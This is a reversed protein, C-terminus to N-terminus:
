TIEKRKDLLIFQNNREVYYGDKYILVKEKHEISMLTLKSEINIKKINGKEEFIRGTSNVQLCDRDNYKIYECDKIHMLWTVSCELIAHYEEIGLYINENVHSVIWYALSEEIKASVHSEIVEFKYILPNHRPLSVTIDSMIERLFPMERLYTILDGHSECAYIHCGIKRKLDILLDDLARCRPFYLYFYKAKNLFDQDLSDQGLEFAIHISNHFSLVKMREKSFNVRKSSLELSIVRNLKLFDALFCGRGYGGGLDILEAGYPIDTLVQYYDLYASSFAEIEINSYLEEQNYHISSHIQALNNFFFDDLKKNLSIVKEINRNKILSKLESKLELESPSM